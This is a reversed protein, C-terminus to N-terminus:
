ARWNSLIMFSKRTGTLRLGRRSLNIAEPITTDFHDRIERSIIGFHNTTDLVIEMLEKLETDSIIKPM